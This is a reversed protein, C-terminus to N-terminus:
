NFSKNRRPSISYYYNSPSGQQSLPFLRCALAPSTTWDRPSSSGKSSSIDVRELIRAQSIGHVSSGQPGCDVPNSISSCLQSQAHVCLVTQRGWSNTYMTNFSNNTAHVLSLTRFHLDEEEKSAFLLRWRSWGKCLQKVRICTWWCEQFINTKKSNIFILIPIRGTVSPWKIAEALGFGLFIFYVLKKKPCLSNVKSILDINRLSGPSYYVKFIMWFSPEWIYTKPKAM